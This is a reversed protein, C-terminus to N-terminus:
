EPNGVRMTEICAYLQRDNESIGYFMDPLYHRQRAQTIPDARSGYEIWEPLDGRGLLVSVALRSFEFYLWLLDRATQAELMRAWPAFEM